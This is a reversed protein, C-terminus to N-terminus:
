RPEKSISWGGDVVVSAGTIFSAEDSVLFAVVSAIEEPRGLRNLATESIRVQYDQPTMPAWAPTPVPGPQVCNVRVRPGYEIALQRCLAALGGKAAAYAPRHRIPLIAHVSSMLVINGEAKELEGIFFRSGLYAAKLNVDLQRDWDIESLEHVPREIEVFANSILIDLRGHEDIVMDHLRQWDQASAVDAQVPVVAPTPEPQAHALLDIGAPDIDVAYVVAGEATLRQTIATGIGSGAGTVLAVKHEIGPLM